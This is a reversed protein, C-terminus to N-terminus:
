VVMGLVWIAAVGVAIAVALNRTVAQALVVLAAAVFGKLGQMALAPAVYAVFIPGPLHQLTMEVFRPPRLARFLAYGGARCLYTALAMGLIALLVDLRLTM